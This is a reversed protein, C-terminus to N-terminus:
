RRGTQTNSQPALAGEAIAARIDSVSPVVGVGGFSACFADGTVACQVADFDCFIGITPRGLAAGLHTLGTDLGVVGSAGALLGAAEAVGLFPPVVSRAGTTPGANGHRVPMELGAAPGADHVPACAAALRRVRALEDPNGWLWVLGVGRTMLDQGIEIWHSEPWLKQARSAGPIMVVYDGRTGPLLGGGAGGNPGGDPERGLGGDPGVRLWDAALPPVRLGFEPPAEVRYGLAAAAVLRNRAVVHRDWSVKARVDYALSALPERASSWSLGARRRARAMRAVVASKILGQCDIVWDYTTARLRDRFARMAERTAPEGLRSRWRRWSLPIVQSVAPNLAPIAQFSAECVWDVVADPANRRIDAVLPQAHVIDGMSSMKVVLVKV